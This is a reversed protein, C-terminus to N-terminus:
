RATLAVVPVPQAHAQTEPSDMLRDMEEAVDLSFYCYRDTFQESPFSRIRRM